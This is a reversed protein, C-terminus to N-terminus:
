SKKVVPVRTRERYREQKEFTDGPLPPESTSIRPFAWEGCWDMGHMIPFGSGRPPLRHCRGVERTAAVYFRCCDCWASM